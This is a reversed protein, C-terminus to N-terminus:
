VKLFVALLIFQTFYIMWSANFLIFWRDCIDTMWYYSHSRIVYRMNYRGVCQGMWPCHHDLREICYGCDTCHKVKMEETCYVHCHECYQESSTEAGGGGGKGVVGRGEEGDVRSRRLSSTSSVVLASGEEEDSRDSASSPPPLVIGPNTLATILLLFTTVIKMVVDFCLLNWQLFSKELKMIMRHNIFSGGFIVFVTVIVGIWHPGIVYIDLSRSFKILHSRGYKM